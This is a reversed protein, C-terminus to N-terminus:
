TVICASSSEPPWVMMGSGHCIKLTHHPVAIFVQEGPLVAVNTNQNYDLFQNQPVVHYIGSTVDRYFAGGPEVAGVYM